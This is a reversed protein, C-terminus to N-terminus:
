RETGFKEAYKRKYEDPYLDRLEALKGAKDLDDWSRDALTETAAAQRIAEQVSPRAPFSSLLALVQDPDGEFLATLSAEQVSTIHGEKRATTMLDCLRAQKAEREAKDREEKLTHLAENESKLRDNDSLIREIEAIVETIDANDKLNLVQKIDKAMKISKTSNSIDTFTVISPYDALDVRQDYADYLAM